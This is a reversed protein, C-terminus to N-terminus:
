RRVRHRGGGQGGKERICLTHVAEQVVGGCDQEMRGRGLKDHRECRRHGGGGGGGVGEWNGGGGAGGVREGGGGGWM